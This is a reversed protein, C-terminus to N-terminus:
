ILFRCFLICFNPGAELSGESESDPLRHWARDWGGGTALPVAWTELVRLRSQPPHQVPTVPGHRPKCLCEPGCRCPQKAGVAHGSCCTEGNSRRAHVVVLHNHRCCCDQSRQSSEVAVTATDAAEFSCACRPVMTAQIPLMAATACVILQRITSRVNGM